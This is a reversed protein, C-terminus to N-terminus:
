KALTTCVVQELCSFPAVYPRDFADYYATSNKKNYLQNPLAEGRALDRWNNCISKCIGGSPNPTGLTAVVGLLTGKLAIRGNKVQRASAFSGSSAKYDSNWEQGVILNSLNLDDM